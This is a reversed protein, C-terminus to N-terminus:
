NGKMREPLAQKSVQRYFILPIILCVVLLVGFVALFMLVPPQFSFYYLQQRVAQVVGYVLLMGLTGVILVTFLCYYMGEATLMKKMQKKSMGIGELAAIEKQRSYISTAITNLFNLLGILFLICSFVVGIMKMMEIVPQYLPLLDSRSILHRQSIGDRLDMLQQKVVPEQESDAQVRIEQIIPSDTLRLMGAESMYISTVNNKSHESNYRIMGWRNPFADGNTVSHPDPYELFGAVRFTSEQGTYRNYIRITKGIIEEPYQVNETCFLYVSKGDEFDQLDQEKFDDAAHPTFTQLREKSLTVATAYAHDAIDEYSVEDVLAKDEIFPKWIDQREGEDLDVELAQTIEVNTVGPIAQIQEVFDQHFQADEPGDIDEISTDTFLFDNPAQMDLFKQWDPSSLVTLVCFLLTIGTSLSVFVVRSKKKERFVNRYAMRVVNGHTTRTYNKVATHDYSFKMASIPSIKGAAKAPKSCSVFVTFVAFLTAVVFIIPHLSVNNPMIDAYGGGSLIMSIFHPIMAQSCLVGILLGLPVGVLCLLSNQRKVFRKIQKPSMGITKFQGYMQTDKVISVQVINYICLYGCFMVVCVVLLAVGLGAFSSGEASGSNFMQVSQDASLNLEEAITQAIKEYTMGQNDAVRFTLISEKPSLSQSFAESVVVNATPANLNHSASYIGAAMINGSYTGLPRLSNSVYDTFYGCLIFTQNQIQGNVEIKMPIEMGIVPESVGLRELANQSVAIENAETPYHGVFDRITPVIHSDWETESYYNLAIPFEDADPVAAFGLFVQEGVESIFDQERLQEADDPSPREVYGEAATGQLFLEMTNFNEKYSFGTCLLTFILFTIMAISIVLLVNKTKNAKVAAYSMKKIVKSTDNEFPLTM